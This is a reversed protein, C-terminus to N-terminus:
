RAQLAVVVGDRPRRTIGLKANPLRDAAASVRFRQVFMALLLAGEMMAFGKGICQRQGAGFPVWAGPHRRAMREDVFRDPDFEEARDWASPHRHVRDLMLSVMTGAPIPYGGLSDDKMAIRPLFYVPGDLRLAESFYRTTARLSAVDDATPLRRGLVDDVETAVYSYLEPSRAMRAIGWSVSAATTEYGAIFLSMTEDRLEQDSL